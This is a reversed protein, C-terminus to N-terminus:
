IENERFEGALDFNVNQHEDIRDGTANVVIPEIEKYEEEVHLIKKLKDARKTYEKSVHVSDRLKYFNELYLKSKGEEELSYCFIAFNLYILPNKLAEPLMTAREFAFFANKKDNLKKLCIGLLM